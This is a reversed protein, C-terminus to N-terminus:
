EFNSPLNIQIRIVGTDGRIFVHIQNRHKDKKKKWIEDVLSIPVYCQMYFASLDADGVPFKKETRYINLSICLFYNGVEQLSRTDTVKCWHTQTQFINVALDILFAADCPVGKSLTHIGNSYV